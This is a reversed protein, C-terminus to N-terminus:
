MNLFSDSRKKLHKSSYIIINVLCQVIHLYYTSWSRSLAQVTPASPCTMIGVTKPLKICEYIGSIHLEIYSLYMLAQTKFVRHWLIVEIYEFSM